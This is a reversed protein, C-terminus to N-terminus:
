SSAGANSVNNIARGAQGRAVILSSLTQLAAIQGPLTAGAGNPNAPIVGGIQGVGTLINGNGITIAGNIATQTNTLGTLIGSVNSFSQGALGNLGGIAQTVTGLASSAAQLGPAMDAFFGTVSAQADSIAAGIGTTDNAVLQDIGTSAQQPPTEGDTPVLVIRYPIEYGQRQVDYRFQAILVTYTQSLYTLTVPLGIIRLRDISQARQLATATRFRGSWEIDDQDSGLAQVQRAGGVLQLKTIRQAGGGNISDPVEFGDLVIGSIIVDSM